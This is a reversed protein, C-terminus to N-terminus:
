AVTRALIIEREFREFAVALRRTWDGAEGDGVRQGDIEVVPQVGTTTGTLFAEQWSGVADLQPAREAIPLGEGPALDLVTSRTVGELISGDTPHTELTDDRRVFLNTSGGERLEGQPGVFLVEDAGAERAALKGMVSAMLATTKIDRFRWRWDPVTTVRKRRSAPPDFEMEFPIVMVTPQMGPPPILVRSLVGRSIQLYLYGSDLRSAELVELCIEHLDNPLPIAVRELGVALRALHPEFHLLVGDLVKVVEYLADGFLNGRDLPDLRADALPQLRGNLHCCPEM